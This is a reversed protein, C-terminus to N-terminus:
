AEAAGSGGREAWWADLAALAEAEEMMGQEIRLDLLFQWAEGVEPGPPIGLHDMIRRGDVPPRLADLAEQARLHDIREELETVRQTGRDVPPADHVVETSDRICM